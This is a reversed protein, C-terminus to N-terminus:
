TAEVGVAEAERGLRRRATLLACSLALPGRDASIAALFGRAHLGRWSGAWAFAHQAAARQGRDSAAEAQPIRIRARPWLRLGHPGIRRASRVRLLRPLRKPLRRPCNRQLQIRRGARRGRDPPCRPGRADGDPSGAARSRRLARCVQSLKRAFAARPGMRRATKPE